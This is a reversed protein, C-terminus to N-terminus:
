ALSEDDEDSDSRLSWGDLWEDDAPDFLSLMIYNTVSSVHNRLSNDRRPKPVGLDAPRGDPYAHKYFCSGAFPCESRGQDFYKCPKSSLANKYDQILKDKDDQDQVWYKSPVVFDSSVRCEPCARITRSEFQKTGRWKRICDLCFVHNCKELIGFRRATIAEKEIVTDMCIGCVKDISRQIAFSLEMEREHDKICDERHQRRQDPNYPHLCSRGCLDCVHGHVYSCQGDPFPCDSETAYPCMPLDKMSSHPLQNNGCCVRAYSSAPEPPPESHRFKCENGYMCQNALFFYCYNEPIKMSADSEHSFNCRGTISYLCFGKQLFPCFYLSTNVTTATVLPHPARSTDTSTSASGRAAM